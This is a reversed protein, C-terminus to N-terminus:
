NERLKLTIKKKLLKATEIQTDKEKPWNIIDAHLDHPEKSSEVELSLEGSRITKADTVAMAKAEAKPSGAYDDGISWAEIEDKCYSTRYVSTELRGKEENYSPMLRTHKKFNLTSRTFDSSSFLFRSIEEDDKITIPSLSNEQSSEKFLGSLKKLFGFVM